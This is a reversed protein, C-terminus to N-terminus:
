PSQMANRLRRRLDEAAPHAIREIGALAAELAPLRDGAALRHNLAADLVASAALLRGREPADAPIAIAAPLPARVAAPMPAAALRGAFGAQERETAVPAADKAADAAAVPRGAYGAQERRKAMPADAETTMADAAAFAAPAEAAASVTNGVALNQRAAGDERSDRLTLDSKANKEEAALAHLPAPPPAAPQAVPAATEQIAVTPAAAVRQPADLSTHLAWGALGAALCAAAAMAWGQRRRRAQQRFWAQRAAALVAARHADDLTAPAPSRRLLDALRPDLESM